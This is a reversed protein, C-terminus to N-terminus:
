YGSKNIALPNILNKEPPIVHNKPPISPSWDDGVFYFPPTMFINCLRISPDPVFLSRGGQCYIIVMEKSQEYSRM